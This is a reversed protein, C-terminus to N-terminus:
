SSGACTGPWSHSSRCAHPPASCRALAEVYLRHKVSHKPALKPIGTMAYLKDLLALVAPDNAFKEFHQSHILNHSKWGKYGEDQHVVLWM